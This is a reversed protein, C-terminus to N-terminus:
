EEFQMQLKRIKMLMTFRELLTMREYNQIMEAIRGNLSEFLAVLRKNHVDLQSHNHMRQAIGARRRGRSGSLSSRGTGKSRAGDTHSEQQVSKAIDM